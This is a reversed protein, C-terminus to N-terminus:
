PKLKPQGWQALDITSASKTPDLANLYQQFYEQVKARRQAQGAPSTDVKLLPDKDVQELAFQMAKGRNEAARAETQAKALEEKRLVDEQKAATAAARGEKRDELVATNQQAAAARRADSDELGVGAVLKRLYDNDAEKKATEGMGARKMGVETIFKDMDVNANYLREMWARDSENRKQQAADYSLKTGLLAQAWDGPKAAAAGAALAQVIDSWGSRGSVEKERAAELAALGQKRKDIGAKADDGFMRASYADAEDRARLGAREDLGGTIQKRLLDALTTDAKPQAAPVEAPAPYKTSAVDQYEPAPRGQGPFSGRIARPDTGGLAAMIQQSYAAPSTGLSDKVDDRITGDELVAGRGGIYAAAVKAMDNKYFKADDQIKRIAAARRDADNDYSEGPLAYQKFTGPMIQMSGRAGQPSTADTNGSSERQTIADIFATIGGSGDRPTYAPQQADISSAAPSALSHRAENGYNQAALYAKTSAETNQLGGFFDKTRLWVDERQRAAAEEQRRLEEEVSGGDEFAVIGGGAYTTPLNTKLRALGGAAMGQAQAAAPLGGGGGQAQQQQSQPPNSQAYQQMLQQQLVQEAQKGATQAVTPPTQGQSMAQQQQWHEAAKDVALKSLLAFFDPTIGTKPDPPAMPKRAMASQTPTPLSNMM